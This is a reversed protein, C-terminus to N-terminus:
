PDEQYSVEEVLAEQNIAEEYIGEQDFAEKYIAEQNLGRRDKRRVRRRVKRPRFREAKEGLKPSGSRSRRSRAQSRRAGFTREEAHRPKRERMPKKLKKM